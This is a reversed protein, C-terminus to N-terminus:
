HLTLVNLQYAALFLLIVRLLWVVVERLEELLGAPPKKRRAFGWARKLLALYAKRRNGPTLGREASQEVVKLQRRAQEAKRKM